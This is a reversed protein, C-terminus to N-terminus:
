KKAECLKLFESEIESFHAPKQPSIYFVMAIKDTGFARQYEEKNLRYAERLLRKIRNRDVAKKYIKKAVSVGFKPSGDEECKVFVIRLSGQSFWRGKKFLLTLDDKGKLKEKKPYGQTKM